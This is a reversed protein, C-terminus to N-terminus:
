QNDPEVSGSVKSASCLYKAYLIYWFMIYFSDFIPSAIINQWFNGYACHKDFNWLMTHLVLSVFLIIVFLFVGSKVSLIFGSKRRLWFVLLLLPLSIAHWRNIFTIPPTNVESPIPPLSGGIIFLLVAWSTIRLLIKMVNIKM